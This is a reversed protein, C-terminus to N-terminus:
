NALNVGAAHQLKVKLVAYKAREKALKMQEEILERERRNVVFLSSEGNEFLNQEGDVLVKSQEVLSIHVNIINEMTALDNYAQYVKNVVLRQKNQLDYRASKLKIDALQMEGREKRLLIPTYFNVGWKYSQSIHDRTLEDTTFPRNFLGAVDMDMRPLLSQKKLTLELKLQDVKFGGIKLAPHFLAAYNALSAISDATVTILSSGATDPISNPSLYVQEDDPGWLFTSLMLTNNRYDLEAQLYQNKRKGVEVLAETTDLMKVEGFLASTRVFEFRQEALQLGLVALERVAHSQQWEWYEATAALYLDNLRAIQEQVTLHRFIKAQKLSTRRRDTILGELLPMMFGATFFGDEPTAFEPNLFTGRNQELGAKFQLGLMTPAKFDTILHRWYDKENFKKEDLFAGITPDLGGRATRLAAEGERSILRAERALPHYALVMEMYQPYTLALLGPGDKQSFLSFPYLAPCFGLLLIFLWRNM